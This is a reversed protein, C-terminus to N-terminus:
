VISFRTSILSSQFCYKMCLILNRLLFKWDRLKCGLPKSLHVKTAPNKIELDGKMYAIYKM